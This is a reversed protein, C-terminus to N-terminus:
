PMGDRGFALRSTGTRETAVFIDRTDTLASGNWVSRSIAITNRKEDLRKTYNLYVFRTEAFRPHLVVDMLGHVAGPLGSEGAGYNMPIGAVPKPDLVGNRIIRLQGLRETVLMSGDPLFTMSFPYALAKTVVSVRIRQGEGTDFEVPKDPLRKGALGRPAVPIGGQFPVTQQGSGVQSAAVVFMLAISASVKKM